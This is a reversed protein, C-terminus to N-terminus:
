KHKFKEYINLNAGKVGVKSLLKIMFPHHVKDFAKKM